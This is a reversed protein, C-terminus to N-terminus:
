VKRGTRSRTMIRTNVGAQTEELIQAALLAPDEVTEGESIRTVHTEYAGTDMSGSDRNTVSDMIARYASVADKHEAAWTMVPQGDDDLVVKGMHDRMEKKGYVIHEMRAMGSILLRKWRIRAVDVDANSLGLKEDRYRQAWGEKNRHYSITRRPVGSIEATKEDSQEGDTAWIEYLLRWKDADNLTELETKDMDPLIAWNAPNPLM